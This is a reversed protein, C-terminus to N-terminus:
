GKECIFPHVLLIHPLLLNERGLELQFIYIIYQKFPFDARMMQFSIFKGASM